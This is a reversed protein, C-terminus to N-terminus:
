LPSPKDRVPRSDTLDVWMMIVSPHASLQYTGPIPGRGFDNELAFSVKCSSSVGWFGGDIAFSISKETLPIKTGVKFPYPEGSHEPDAYSERSIYNKRLPADPCSGQINSIVLNLHNVSALGSNIIIDNKLLAMTMVEADKVVYNRSAASNSWGNIDLYDIRDTVFVAVPHVGAETTDEIGFHRVHEHMMLGIIENKSANELALKPVNICISANREGRHTSADKEENDDDETCKKSFVYQSKEIDELLGKSILDQLLTSTKGQGQYQSIVYAFNKLYNRMTVGDEGFIDEIDRLRGTNSNGGGTSAGGREAFAPSTLTVGILAGSFILASNKIWSCKKM